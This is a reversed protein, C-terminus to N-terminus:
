ATKGCGDSWIQWPEIVGVDLLQAAAWPDEAM